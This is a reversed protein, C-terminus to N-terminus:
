HNKSRASLVFMKRDPKVQNGKERQRKIKSIIMRDVMTKKKSNIKMRKIITTRDWSSYVQPNIM